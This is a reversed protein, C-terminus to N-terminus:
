GEAKVGEALDAYNKTNVFAHAKRYICWEYFECSFQMQSGLPTNKLVELKISGTNKYM